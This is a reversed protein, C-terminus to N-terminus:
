TSGTPAPFQSLADRKMYAVVALLPGLIIGLGTLVLASVVGLVVAPHPSEHSAAYVIVPALTLLAALGAFLGGFVVGIGWGRWDSDVHVAQNIVVAPLYALLSAALGLLLASRWARTTSRKLLLLATLPLLAGGIIAVLYSVTPDVLGLEHQLRRSALLEVSVVLALAVAWALVSFRRGSL